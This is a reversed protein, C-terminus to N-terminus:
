NVVIKVDQLPKITSTETVLFMNHIQTENTNHLSEVRGTFVTPQSLSTLAFYFHCGVIVLVNHQATHSQM